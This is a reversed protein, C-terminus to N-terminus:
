PANPNNKSFKEAVKIHPCDQGFTAMSKCACTRLKHGNLDFLTVFFPGVKKPNGNSVWFGPSAHTVYYVIHNLQIKQWDYGQACITARTRTAM